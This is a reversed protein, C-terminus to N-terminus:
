FVLYGILISVVTLTINDIDKFPLSEVLMAGLAIWTVPLLFRAIPGSFVGAWVYMEFIFVTLLWGGVFVSLSGAVSKERSWPLKPSDILRGVIDAIGDGGCMIMLAPIGILSDKWYILTILVFVIGYFLPGRLIERRDGTRSMAKVSAEDKIIGTGVLVFQATIVLPVLAALWRSIQVDPYMLWCLVFIPGTGIHILKRSLRSEIIGRHALFDMLRLFALAIIFTFITALYPNM